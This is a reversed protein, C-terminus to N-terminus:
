YLEFRYVAKSETIWMERSVFKPHSNRNMCRLKAEKNKKKTYKCMNRPINLLEGFVFGNTQLVPITIKIKSIAAANKPYTKGHPCIDKQPAVTM